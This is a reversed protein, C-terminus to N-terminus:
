QPSEFDVEAELSPVAEDTTQNYTATPRRGKRGITDFAGIIEEFRAKYDAAVARISRGQAIAPQQESNDSTDSIAACALLIYYMGLCLEAEALVVQELASAGSYASAGARWEVQKAVRTVITGLWTDFNGSTTIVPQWMTFTLAAEEKLNTYTVYAM